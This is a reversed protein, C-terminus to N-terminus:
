EPDVFMKEISNSIIEPSINKGDFYTDDNFEDAVWIFQEIGNLDVKMPVLHVGTAYIRPEFETFQYGLLRQEIKLSM